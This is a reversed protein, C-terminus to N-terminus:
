TAQSLMEKTVSWYTEGWRPTASSPTAGELAVRRAVIMGNNRIAKTVRTATTALRMTIDVNGRDGRAGRYKSQRDGKAALSQHAIDDGANEIQRVVGKADAFIDIAALRFPRDLPKRQARDPWSRWIVLKLRSQVVM